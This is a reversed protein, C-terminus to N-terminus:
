AAGRETRTEIAHVVAAMDLAGHGLALTEGYLAHSVDLLPSAIHATRAAEAVLRSNKLVDTIAAQVSFDHAVLKGLKVRSVASAMPGADLVATFRALDLGHRDAFHFAEALGTVMTILFLNVALKMTLATPVPGCVVTERCMPALLPRVAEVAAPDGALMAVLEGAEAPKRSGSVPAEVYRGGAAVIDAELARSYAPETTGMHVITRDAVTPEFADTGRSLVADIAAGDALMLIVTRAREFLAAKTAAVEAGAARVPETKGASRNWVLLPTGAKALDRALNLAMAEGMNGLGIFGITM